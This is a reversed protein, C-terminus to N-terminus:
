ADLRQKFEGCWWAAITSKFTAVVNGDEDTLNDPPYRCCQGSEKDDSLYFRCSQCETVM